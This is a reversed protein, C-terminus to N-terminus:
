IQDKLNWERPHVVDYEVKYEKQLFGLSGLAFILLRTMKM